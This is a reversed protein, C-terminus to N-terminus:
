NNSRLTYLSVPVVHNSHSLDYSYFYGLHGSAYLAGNFSSRCCSWCSASSNITSGKIATFAKNITALGEGDSLLYYLHSITPLFFEGKDITTSNINYCYNVAPYLIGGSVTTSSYTKDAYAENVQKAYAADYGFADNKFFMPPCQAKMFKKWGEEGEGYYDRLVKCYDDSHVTSTNLYEQLFVPRDTKINTLASKLCRSTDNTEDGWFILAREYCSITGESGTFCGNKRRMKSNVYAMPETADKMSFGDKASIWDWWNKYNCDVEIDGDENVYCYFDYYSNDAQASLASQISSALAAVTTANYTITVTNITGQTVQWSFTGTRNTGDLTYGSLIHRQRVMWIKDAHTKYAVLVKKGIRKVVAGIIEYTTQDLSSYDFKALPIYMVKRDSIRKVCIDARKPIKTFENSM